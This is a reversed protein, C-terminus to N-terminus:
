MWPTMIHCADGILVVKKSTWRELTESDILSTWRICRDALGVLEQILPWGEFEEKVTALPVEHPLMPPDELAEHQLALVVNFLDDYRVCYCMSPGGPGVMLNICPPDILYRLHPIAAIRSRPMMFRFVHVGSDKRKITRGAVAERCVSREGDAGVILDASFTLGNAVTISSMASNLTIVPHSFLVKVGAACAEEYLVRYLDYRHIVAFPAEYLDRMYKGMKQRSLLENTKYSRLSAHEPFYVHQLVKDLM